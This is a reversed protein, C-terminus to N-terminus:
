AGCRRTATARAERALTASRASCSSRRTSRARDALLAKKADILSEPKAEGFEMPACCRRATRRISSSRARRGAGQGDDKDGLKLECSGLRLLARRAGVAASRRRPARLGEGAGGAGGGVRRAEPAVRRARAAGRPADRRDRRRPRLGQRVKDDLGLAQAAHALRMLREVQLRDRSAGGQADADRAGAGPRRLARGAVLARRRARGGRRARSRGGARRPLARDGEQKDELGDYIEGAEVLLRTRELRNQTHPVAEVLLKAAKLFEGNKRYIEVLATMSPVHTADIELARVFRAEAQKADGLKEASIEGARHICSSGSAVQGRGAPRAARADRGGEGVAGDERLPPHAGGADRRPQAARDRRRPLGRDGPRSRAARARLHRRDPLPDRRAIPPPVM